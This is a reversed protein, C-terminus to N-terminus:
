RPYPCVYRAHEATFTFHVRGAAETVELTTRYVAESGDRCNKLAYQM